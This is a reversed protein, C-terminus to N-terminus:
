TERVEPTGTFGPISLGRLADAAQELLRTRAARRASTFAETRPMIGRHAGTKREYRPGRSGFDYLVAHRASSVIDVELPSRVQVSLGSQLAGTRSPYRSRVDRALVEAIGRVRPELTSRAFTAATTELGRRLEALGELRLSASM